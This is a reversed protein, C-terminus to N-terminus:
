RELFADPVDDFGDGRRCRLEFSRGPRQGIGGFDGLIKRGPDVGGRVFRRGVDLRDSRGGLLEAGRHGFDAALYLIGAANGLLGHALRTV